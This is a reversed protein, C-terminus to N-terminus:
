IRSGGFSYCFSILLRTRQITDHSDVPISVVPEVALRGSALRCGAHLRKESKRIDPITTYAIQTTLINNFVYGLGARYCLKFGYGTDYRPEVTCGIKFGRIIRWDLSIDSGAIRYDGNWEMDGFLRFGYCCGACFAGSYGASIGVQQYQMAQSFLSHRVRTSFHEGLRCEAFLYRSDRVGIGWGPGAGICDNPILLGALLVIVTQLIHGMYRGNRVNNGKVM